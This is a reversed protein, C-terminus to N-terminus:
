FPAVVSLMIVSLMFVNLMIHKNTVIVMISMNLTMKLENNHQTDNHHIDNHMINHLWYFM